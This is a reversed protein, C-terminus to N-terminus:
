GLLKKHSEVIRKRIKNNAIYKKQAEKDVIKKGREKIFELARELTELAEEKKDHQMAVQYHVWFIEDDNTDLQKMLRMAQCSVEYAEALKRTKRLFEAKISLGEMLGQFYEAGRAEEVASELLLDIKGFDRNDESDMLIKALYIRSHINLRSLKYKKSLYLSRQAYDLASKLDDENLLLLSLNSLTTGEGRRDGIQQYLELAIRYNDKATQLDGMTWYFLGINNHDHASGRLDGRKRRIEMSRKLIQVANEYEGHRWLVTSLSSLDRAEGLADHLATRQELSQKFYKEAEQYNGLNYCSLGLCRFAEAHCLTGTIGPIKLVEQAEKIAQEYKAMSIAYYALQNKTDAIRQPDGESVSMKLLEGLM